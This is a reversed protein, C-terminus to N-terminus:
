EKCVPSDRLDERSPDDCPDPPAQRDMEDAVTEIAAEHAAMPNSIMKQTIQSQITARDVPQGQLAAAISADAAIKAVEDLFLLNSDAPGDEFRTSVSTRSTGDQSLEAVYRGYEGTGERMFHWIIKDAMPEVWLSTGPYSTALSMADAESPLDSLLSHVDAMPRDVTQSNGCAVLLLALLPAVLTAEKM